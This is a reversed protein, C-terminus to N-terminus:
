MWELAMITIAFGAAATAILVKDGSKIKNNELLHNLTIPTAATASNGYLHHVAIMKEEPFNLKKSIRRILDNSPQHFVIHDVEKKDWNLEELMKEVAPPVLELGAKFIKNGDSNFKGGVKLHCSDFHSPYATNHFGLVRAHSSKFPKHSLLWAAAGGSLTLGAGKYNLDDRNQINFDMASENYESTCALATKKDPHTQLILSAMHTAEVFGVCASTIDFAYVNELGIRSSIEMATSPELYERGIGGYVVVDVNDSSHDTDEFCNHISDVCYDVARKGIEPYYRKDSETLNFLRGVMRIIKSEDKKDGKFNKKIENFIYDNGEVRKSLGIGPKSLYIEKQLLM